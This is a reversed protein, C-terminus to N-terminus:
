NPDSLYWLLDYMDRGKVYTRQLIAHLKGALLSARDHHHLQLTVHRRIVTTAELLAKEPTALYAHQGGGVDQWRQGFFLASQIHRFTYRGLPTDYSTPRATTVSTIVPTYEPILGYPALAAQLSVYSGRVLRNAILFPHPAVKRYPPALAYLGRRLQQLKGAATWRSLQRRVHTPDVDGALLLGTEFVPEAGVIALLTEFEM